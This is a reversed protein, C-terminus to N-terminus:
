RVAISNSLHKGAALFGTVLGSTQDRIVGPYLVIEGKSWGPLVALARRAVETGFFPHSAVPDNEIGHAMAIGPIGEIIMDSAGELVFSYVADCAVRRPAAFASPFWWRDQVYIPHWPTVKLGSLHVLDAAGDPCVTKLICRVEATGSRTSVVDGRKLDQMFKLSGDAMTVRCDGSFCHGNPDNYASMNIPARYSRQAGPMNARSPTPAPLSNFTDDLIDRKAKFTQGGYAQVGPDLFNNCQQRWHALALSPLFHRGWKTFAAAELGEAVQGNMDATLATDTMQQVVEQVAGPERYMEGGAKFAKMVFDVVLQRDLSATPGETPVVETTGQTTKITFSEGGRVVVSRPQGYCIPGLPVIIGWTATEAIPAGIVEAEGEVLLWAKETHTVLENAMRHVFVSGVLGIDPIFSYSGQSRLALDYLLASDLDYGFGFTHLVAHLEPRKDMYRDLM